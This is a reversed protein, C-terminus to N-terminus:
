PNTNSLRTSLFCPVIYIADLLRRHCMDFIIEKSLVSTWFKQLGTFAPDFILEEQRYFPESLIM